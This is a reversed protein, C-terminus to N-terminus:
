STAAIGWFILIGLLMRGLDYGDPISAAFFYRLMVGVFTLAVVLGVFIAAIWEIADIFGDM